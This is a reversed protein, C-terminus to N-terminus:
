LMDDIACAFNYTPIKNQRLIVFSDVDFPDFEFEGKIIDTFKIGNDPKKLRVVFAEDERQLVEIDSLKDCGGSYRYPKKEEKAKQRQTDIDDASCFCVFGKKQTLLDSAFKWHTKFNDSQYVVQDYKIGFIDLINLIEKDKNEQNRQTDTDEIRLLFKQNQQQSIIYNFIAVRLNGIHMDGTPSPAFRLM